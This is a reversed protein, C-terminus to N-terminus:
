HPLIWHNETNGSGPKDGAIKYKEQIFYKVDCYPFAIQSRNAYDYFVAKKLPM